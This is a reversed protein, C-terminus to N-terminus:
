KKNPQTNERPDKNLVAIISSFGNSPKKMEAGSEMQSIDGDLFLADNCQLKLFLQAFEYLNPFKYSNYDTMAMVVSGDEKIGIGNRHLRSSSEKNFKPHIVQKRLLLPGSQVAQDVVTNELPYETTSIIRAKGDNILFIGNPKLFFNGYGEERNVPSLETGDQILLGSPHTNRDFIGGNMLLKPPTNKRSLFASVKPFTNLSAGQDDKWIIRLSDPSTRSIRYTIGEVKTLEFGAYALNGLHLLLLLFLYLQSM